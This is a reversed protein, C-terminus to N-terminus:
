SADDDGNVFPMDTIAGDAGETLIRVKQKAGSLKEECLKILKVASEFETISDDLSLSGAELRMVTDELKNIAEEFTMNDTAKM